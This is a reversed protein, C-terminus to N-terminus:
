SQAVLWLYIMTSRGHDMAMVGLDGLDQKFSDVLSAQLQQRLSHLEAAQLRSIAWQGLCLRHHLM